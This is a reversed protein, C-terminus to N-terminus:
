RLRHRRSMIVTLQFLAPAMMSSLGTISCSTTQSAVFDTTNATNGIVMGSRDDTGPRRRVWFAVSWADQDGFTIPNTLNLFEATSITSDVDLAGGGFVYEGATHTITPTGNAIILDNDNGSSDTFDEDFPYYALLGAQTSTTTLVLIAMAVGALTLVTRTRKRTTM